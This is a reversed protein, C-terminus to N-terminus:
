LIAHAYVILIFGATPINRILENKHYPILTTKKSPFYNGMILVAIIIVSLLLLIEIDKYTFSYVTDVVRTSHESKLLTCELRKKLM